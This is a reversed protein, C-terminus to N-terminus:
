SNRPCSNKSAQSRCRKSREKRTECGVGQIYMSGDALEGCDIGYHSWKPKSDKIAQVVMLADGEFEIEQSGLEKGFEVALLAGKAKAIVPHLCGEMFNSRAVCVLGHEDRVIIEWGLRNLEVELAVDWNIKFNGRDPAKEGGRVYDM